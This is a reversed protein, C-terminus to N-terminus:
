IAARGVIQAYADPDTAGETVFILARTASTVGLAARVSTADDGTLLDILGALGAAGTEGAVVGADALARMAERAREDEIAAFLDIGASVIPWAILSARGANLGAMISDHPGPVDVIQGARMAALLCAARTPEVGVIQIGGDGLRKEWAPPLPASAPASASDGERGPTPSLRLASPPSAPLHPSGRYHIVVAAALAGVGIQVAVLDPREQGRRALEDDVEAFITAYGEIVHRPVAEYGPWSTDSIVLCRASAEAASREVADDYTGDVVVVEAGEGEIAQIRAEATGAPVFIRADLGLLRAMHAVARGHNGDTAAALTLPRLPALQAALEELTHWPAIAGGLREKLAQYTAWSAGLIKFAPLGLRSSEDKVWVKGIGLMAALGPADVLPTPAYGPLRLHFELQARDSPAKDITHTVHPNYFIRTDM